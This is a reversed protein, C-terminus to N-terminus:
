PRKKILLLTNGTVSLSSFLMACVAVLPSLLGAMAIPISIANYVFSFILNQYIKKNVKKSLSLFDVIQRPEGRMLTLHAAEKGLLTGSHVAMALDASALALADNIGDGVMAVTKGKEKLRRIFDSKQAPTMEGHANKIGLEKAVNITSNIGDGSILYIQCHNQYLKQITEEVGKKIRDGFTIRGIIKRDVTLYVSSSIDQNNSNQSKLERV